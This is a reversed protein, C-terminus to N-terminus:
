HVGLQRSHQANCEETAEGMCCGNSRKFHRQTGSLCVHTLKAHKAMRTRHKYLQLRCCPIACQVHQRHMVCLVHTTRSMPESILQCMDFSGNTCNRPPLTAFALSLWMTFCACPNWARHPRKKVWIRLSSSSGLKAQVVVTCCDTTCCDTRSVSRVQHLRSAM